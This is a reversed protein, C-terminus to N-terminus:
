GQSPKGNRQWALELAKALDESPAIEHETRDRWEAKRRNKLWFIAATTDPPYHEIYDVILPKGQDNFIKVAKHSYGLARRYLSKAVATDAGNKGDKLAGLFEPYRKRWNDLTVTSVGWFAAMEVDTAGLLALGHAEKVYRPDYATPRGMKPKLKRKPM